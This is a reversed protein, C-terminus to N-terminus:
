EKCVPAGCLPRASYRGITGYNEGFRVLCVFIKKVTEQRHAFGPGCKAAFLRNREQSPPAFPIYDYQIRSFRSIAPLHVTHFDRQFSQGFLERGAPALGLAHGGSDFVEAELHRVALEDPQQPRRAAAFGGREVHDAPQFGRSGAADKEPLLVDGGKRGFQAAHAHHELVIGEVRVQGNQLVDQERQFVELTFVAGVRWCIRSRASSVAFSTCISSRSSRRGRSSEPPCCCRTAMARAGKTLVGRTSSSSSGSELRSARRRRCVRSSIQLIWFFVPMVVSNTVWSWSSAM